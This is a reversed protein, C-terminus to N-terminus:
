FIGGWNRPSLCQALCKLHHLTYSMAELSPPAELRTPLADHPFNFLLLLTSYHLVVLFSDDLAHTISLPTLRVAARPARFTM